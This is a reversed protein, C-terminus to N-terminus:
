ESLDPPLRQCSRAWAPILPKKERTGSSFHEQGSSSRPNITATSTTHLALTNEFAHTKSKTAVPAHTSLPWLNGLVLAPFKVKTAKKPQYSLTTTQPHSSWLYFHRVKQPIKPIIQFMHMFSTSYSIITVASTVACQVIHSDKLLFPILSEFWIEVVAGM